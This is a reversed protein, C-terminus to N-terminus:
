HRKLRHALQARMLGLRQAVEAVNHRAAILARRYEAVEKGNGRPRDSPGARDVSRADVSSGEDASQPSEILRGGADVSLAHWGMTEGGRFLHHVDISEDRGVTIVGREVLNQLERINGPFDYQRLAQVARPTFGPVDRRHLDCHRKLFAEM